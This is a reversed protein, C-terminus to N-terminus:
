DIWRMYENCRDVSKFRWYIMDGNWKSVDELLKYGLIELDVFM